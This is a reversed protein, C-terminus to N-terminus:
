RAAMFWILASVIGGAIVLWLRANRRELQGTRFAELAVLATLLLIGGLFLVFTLDRSLTLAMAVLLSGGLGAVIVLVWYAGPVTQGTRRRWVVGVLFLTGASLLGALLAAMLDPIVLLGM